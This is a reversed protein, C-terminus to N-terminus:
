RTVTVRIITPELGNAVLSGESPIEIDLLVLYDGPVTPVALEIAAPVVAGPELGAPLRVGTVNAAGASAVADPDGGLAVWQGVVQARAAPAGGDPDLTTAIAGHGWPGTGLNAVWLDLTSQSGRALELRAPAVVRADLEGTVRVLLPPFLAQTAGDFAVGEADHLTVSLRYRGPADPADVQFAMATDAQKVKVPEVVDGLREPVVLGLDPPGAPEEAPASEEAAPASAESTAAEPEGDTPEASEAAPAPEETGAPEETAPPEETAAPEAAPVEDDPAAPVVVDLPDWRVSAFLEKPLEDRDAVQYRFKYKLSTGASLASDIFPAQVDIGADLLTPPAPLTPLAAAASGRASALVDRSSIDGELVLSRTFGADGHEPDMMATYGDSRRSAFAFVNGNRSPARRWASEISREGELISRLMHNPSSWAEAVVAAAGARIFGAAFNDVRQMAQDLTGEVVGPESNGSAYCLHNLLVVANSALRISKAIRAEGFYQHAHDGSGPSPNLGFGNQTPPYLSDRYKSPWGNGHGMYIVISAGQLAKKVAPWTADPSYLETVDPTYRRALKAADRAEARYRDTAAGSPGVVIVVKPVAAAAAAPRAGVVPTILGALLLSALIAAVLRRV